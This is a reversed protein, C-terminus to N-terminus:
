KRRKGIGMWAIVIYICIRAHASSEVNYIIYTIRSCTCHACVYIYIYIGEPRVGQSKIHLDVVECGDFPSLNHRRNTKISDQSFKPGVSGVRWSTYHTARTSVRIERTCRHWEATIFVCIITGAEPARAQLCSLKLKLFTKKYIKQNFIDWIMKVYKLNNKRMYYFWFYPNKQIFILNVIFKIGFWINWIILNPWASVM